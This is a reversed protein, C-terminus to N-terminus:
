VGAQKLSLDEYRSIKRKWGVDSSRVARDESDDAGRKAITATTFKESLWKQSSCAREQGREPQCPLLARWDQVEM